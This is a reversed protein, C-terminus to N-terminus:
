KEVPNYAAQTRAATSAQQNLSLPEAAQQALFAERQQKLQQLNHYIPDNRMAAFNTTPQPTDLAEFATQSLATNSIQVTGGFMKALVEARAQALAPGNTGNVLGPLKGQIQQGSANSTTVFGHNDIEAITKGNVVVTAYPKYAPNNQTSPTQSYKHQLITEQASVFQQYLAEPAESVHFKKVNDLSLLQFGQLSISM